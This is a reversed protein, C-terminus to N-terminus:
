QDCTRNGHEDIRCAAGELIGARKGNINYATCGKAGGKYAQVYLEKFNQYSIRGPASEGSIEGAVNCTKSVASDIYKQARCLVEVHQQPTVQDATRPVTGFNEVGYDRVVIERRGEPMRVSRRTEVAFTPELGSSVNDAVLSITGAPAISLLVGNRLGTTKIHDRLDEPLTQAFGSALWREADFNPFSGKERALLISTSYAAKQVHMLVKDQLNLYEETGYAHGCAEIANALGTVGIGMRRKTQQQAKQEALPYHTLDIVNDCARVALVVDNMLWDIDIFRSTGVMAPTVFKSVNMSLLLCAGFPPLPQEGCPNTAAITECYYLPNMRNVTDIFIVGPEAYDWNREMIRAWVDLARISGRDEGAFRLDYLADEEVAEIFADTIAVSINFNILSATDAKANVFRMIDPHDVRLVAMMAGQRDGASMITDSMANWVNMFSVPGKAYTMKGLGRVPDGAPRLSSFDWGVGGGTRMTQAGFKVEDFIGEISDPITGGVYCNMATLQYPRGVALQQRGAPLIRQCRLADLLPRFHKENDAVARAYRVCYDDFVEGEDLYKAAHLERSFPSSPGIPM